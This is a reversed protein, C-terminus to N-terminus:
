RLWFPKKDFQIPERSDNIIKYRGVIELEEILALKAPVVKKINEKYGLLRGMANYIKVVLGSCVPKEKSDWLKDWFLPSDGISMYFPYVLYEFIDYSINEMKDAEISGMKRDIVSIPTKPRLLLIESEAYLDVSFKRVKPPNAEICNVFTKEKRYILFAHIFVKAANVEEESYNWKRLMKDQAWAILKGSWAKHKKVLCVDNEELKLKFNSLLIDESYKPIM